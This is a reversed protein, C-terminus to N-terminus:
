LLRKLTTGNDWTAEAVVFIM